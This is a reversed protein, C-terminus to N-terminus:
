SPILLFMKRSNRILCLIISLAMGDAVVILDADYTSGDATHAAPKEWDYQVVKKKKYIEIGLELAKNLLVSHYDARHVMLYSGGFDLEPVGHPM